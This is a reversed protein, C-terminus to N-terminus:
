VATKRFIFRCYEDGKALCEEEIATVNSDFVAEAVGAFVGRILHCVGQATPSHAVAFPSNYVKMVLKDESLDELVFRGWGIQSGMELMFDVMQRATLGMKEAFGRGSLRGGALGGSFIMEGAKDTHQEVAEQWNSLTEPRILLYRVGNYTMAGADSDWVLGDIINAM